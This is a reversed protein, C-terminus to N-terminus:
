LGLLKIGDHMQELSFEEVWLNFTDENSWVVSFRLWFTRWDEVNDFRSIDEKIAALAEAYWSNGKNHPKPLRSRFNPNCISLNGDVAAHVWDRYRWSVPRDWPDKPSFCPLAPIKEKLSCSHANSHVFVSHPKRNVLPLYVRTYQPGMWKVIRNGLDGKHNWPEWWPYDLCLPGPTMMCHSGIPQDGCCEHCRLCIPDPYQYKLCAYLQPCTLGLCAATAKHLLGFIRLVLETPLTDINTKVYKM